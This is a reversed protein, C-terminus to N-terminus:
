RTMVASIPMQMVQRMYPSCSSKFDCVGREQRYGWCRRGNVWSAYPNPTIFGQDRGCRWATRSRRTRLGSPMLTQCGFGQDSGCRWATRSRRARLGDPMLTQDLMLTRPDSARVAGAGGLPARAARGCALGGRGGVGVAACLLAGGHAAGAPAAAAPLLRGCPADAAVCGSAAPLACCRRGAHWVANLLWPIIMGLDCQNMLLLCGEGALESM